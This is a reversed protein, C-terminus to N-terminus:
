PVIMGPVLPTVFRYMLVILVGPLTAAQGFDKSYFGSDLIWFKLRPDNGNGSPLPYRLENAIPGSTLRRGTRGRGYSSDVPRRARGDTRRGPCGDGHDGVGVTALM